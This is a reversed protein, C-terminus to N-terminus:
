EKGAISQIFEEIPMAKGYLWGQYYSCGIEDLLDREDETEVYEAVVNFDLKKALSIVSVIIDQSRDNEMCSKVISGDLKVEDFKNNQLYAVSTHGLGFDDIALKYGLARIRDFLEHTNATIQLVAQETIEICINQVRKRGKEIAYQELRRLYLPDSFTAPLVNVSITIPNKRGANIREEDKLAQNLIQIECNILMGTEAFLKMVLPPYIFGFQPHNWRLLAEAAVPKGDKLFQGQYFLRLENNKVASRLDSALSCAIRGYIGPITLLEIPVINRESEHMIEIIDNIYKKATSERRRDYAIIFPRYILLGIAIIVIQLLAGRISGTGLWGSIIAPTTWNVFHIEPPVLGAAMAGYAIFYSVLPVLLFPIFLTVNFILPLGFVLIENINFIMPFAAYKLIQRNAQRKSFLLIALFLSFATGCGGLLVYHGILGRTLINDSGSVVFELMVSELANSGHIGFFWLLTSAFVFFAGSLVRLGHDILFASVSSAAKVLCNTFFEYFSNVDFIVIVASNFVAFILIILTAPIIFRIAQKLNPDSIDGILIRKKNFIFFFREFLFPVLIGCFIAIFMGRAGLADFFNLSFFSDAECAADTGAFIFFCILSTFLAPIRLDYEKVVDISASNNVYAISILCVAYVSFLGYTTQYVAALIYHFFSNKALFESVCPIPIWNLWLAIAGILLIPIENTLGNRIATLVPSNEIKNFYLNVKKIM